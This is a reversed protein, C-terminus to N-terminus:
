VATWPTGEDQCAVGVEDPTCGLVDALAARALEARNNQRSLHACYVSRLTSRELQGLIAAAAANSLHGYDGSIRRKLSWPYDGKELMESDHNCELMLAECGSLMEIIHPTSMGVDTLVGLRVAGDTFVFQVPEGADHPVTYPHAEIAGIALPAHADLMRLDVGEIVQRMVARYTGYTLYAPIGHRRALRFVGGVHDGHEHTVLIADLSSPEIGHRQLRREIEKLGFGCDLMLRSPRPGGGAEVVLANGESGSGLSAFRM